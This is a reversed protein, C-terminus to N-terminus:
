DEQNMWQYRNNEWYIIGGGHSEEVTINIGMTTLTKRSTLDSGIINGTEKDILTKSIEIGEKVPEIVEMWSLDTMGAVENGAGFQHYGYRNQNMLILGIEKTKRNEVPFVIDNEEDGNFDDVLFNPSGLVEFEKSLKLQGLQIKVWEPFDIGPKMLEIAITDVKLLESKLQGIELNGVTDTNESHQCNQLIIGLLISFVLKNM